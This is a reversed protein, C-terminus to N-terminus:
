GTARVVQAQSAGLNILDKCLSEFGAVVQESVADWIEGRDAGTSCLEPFVRLPASAERAHASVNQMTTALSPELRHGRLILLKDIEECINQLSQALMALSEPTPNAFLSDIGPLFRESYRDFLPGDIHPAARFHEANDLLRSIPFNLSKSLARLAVAAFTATRRAFRGDSEAWRLREHRSLLQDVVFIGFLLFISNAFLNAWYPSESDKISLYLLVVTLVSMIVVLVPSVTKPM